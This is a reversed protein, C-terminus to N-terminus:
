GWVAEVDASSVALACNKMLGSLAALHTEEGYASCADDVLFCSYDHHFADRVTCDICCETTLGTFVLTDVGRAKLQADFDTGVFSSFLLKAIEIEGAKPQVRYYDIGPTGARCIDLADAPYGQRQYFLKLARSDTKADTVVRIFALSAGVKRAAAILGEIRDITPEVDSLDCGVQAMAGDPAAFDRQVDVIVLATSAPALMPGLAEISLGSSVPERPM